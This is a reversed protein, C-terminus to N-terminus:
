SEKRFFGFFEIKGGADKRLLKLIGKEIAFQFEVNKRIDKTHILTIFNKTISWNGNEINQILQISLNSKLQYSEEEFEFELYQSDAKLQPEKINILETEPESFYEFLQWKGPIKKSPRIFMETTSLWNKFVSFVSKKKM